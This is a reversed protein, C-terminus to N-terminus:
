FCVTLQILQNNTPFAPAFNKIGLKELDLKLYPFCSKNPNGYRDHVIFVKAMKIIIM